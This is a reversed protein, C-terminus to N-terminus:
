AYSLAKAPVGVVTCRAPAARLVVAGAGVISEEGVTAGQLVVAGIGIHALPEVTVGGGLVARPSIHVHADVRCDHEVVAGSNIICNEGIVASANIIVGPMVVTGCGIRASTAIVATPHVLTTPALGNGLASAFCQARTRNDGVAVVFASGAFRHLDLSGGLLRCDCFELGIRAPDDDLFAIREFCGASRAIDLVVKGHGGAGWILLLNSM